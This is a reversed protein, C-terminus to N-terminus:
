TGGQTRFFNISSKEETLDQKVIYKKEVSGDDYIHLQFGKNTTERGLIDIMTILNKNITPSEIINTSTVNGLADTKILCIDGSNVGETSGCVIFGGDNTQQVDVSGGGIFLYQSWEEEGYQSTKTIGFDYVNTLIQGGDETEEASYGWNSSWWEEEGNESIKILGASSCIVYGGDNSQTVSGISGTSCWEFTKYWDETGESDTKIVYVKGIDFLKDAGDLSDTLGVIIYGGDNTQEVEFGQEYGCLFGCEGGFDNLWEVNGQNDTKVLFVQTSYNNYLEQVAAAGVSIYGGDDTEKVDLLSTNYYLPDIINQIWQEEGNEDLKLLFATKEAACDGYGLVAGAAIYGGDNTQQISGTYSIGYDCPKFTTTWMTDGLYNTKIFCALGNGGPLRNNAGIIYGNDNTQQVSIGNGGYSPPAAIYTQVWGQGFSLFPIILLLLLKKM